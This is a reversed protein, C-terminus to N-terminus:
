SRKMNKKLIPLMEISNEDGQAAALTWLAHAKTENKLVGEGTAYMRGLYYQAQAYGLQAAQEYYEKAKEYAQEVGQGHENMRGLNCMADADGQQAAQEFPIRAMEYSQKVGEGREYMTGLNSMATVDGQQAAQEYYEKAKKYSQEVGLGTKYMFGLSTIATAFGQQAALEYLMKAMEYSQKVGKGQYYQQGMLQQAWAKKKKVWPRLNKVQEEESTPTKARCFPCNDAMSMSQMDKFCHKHIGNGCCTWRTFQSTVKPLNELCIPCEDGEEEDAETKKNKEKKQQPSTTSMKEKKEKGDDGDDDNLDEKKPMPKDTEDKDMTADTVIQERLAEKEMKKKRKIEAILRKCDNRHMKWHKKQCKTNCYWTSKCPCKTKSFSRTPTEPLGCMSCVIAHPDLSAEEREMDDLVKLYKIADEDGLDEAKIFLDRAKAIDKEVGSGNAYLVGLNAMAEVLGQEIALEYLEKAMLFSQKVGKGNSYM